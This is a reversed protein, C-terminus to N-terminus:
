EEFRNSKVYKITEVSFISFESRDITDARIKENDDEHPSTTDKSNKGIKRQRVKSCM